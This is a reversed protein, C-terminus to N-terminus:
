PASQSRARSSRESRAERAARRPEQGRPRAGDRWQSPTCGYRRRFAKAFHAPQRYGVSRAIAAVPLPSSKLLAAGRDMRVEHVMDRVSTGAEAFARQLQRPSAYIERSLAEVSLRDDDYSLEIAAVAAVFLGRRRQPGGKDTSRAM